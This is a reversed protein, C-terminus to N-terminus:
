SRTARIVRWAEAIAREAKKRMGPDAKTMRALLTEVEGVYVRGFDPDSHAIDRSNSAIDACKVTQAEASVGALRDIERSRRERRNLGPYNEKIFVDTLEVVLGRVREGFKAAIAAESWRVDKPAVDELVDHLHAAAIVQPDNTVGAVLAAVEDTHVWYPEGSYKRVHGVADHAAHAFAQAEAVLDPTPPMNGLM